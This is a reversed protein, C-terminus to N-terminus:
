SVTKKYREGTPAYNGSIFPTRDGPGPVTAGHAEVALRFCSGKACRSSDPVATRTEGGLYLRGKECQKLHILRLVMLDTLFRFEEQLDCVLAHYYDTPTHFVGLGPHIREVRVLSEIQRYLLTYGFNLLSNVPDMAPRFRAHFGYERPIHTSLRNWYVWAARAEFSRLTDAASCEEVDRRIAMMERLANEDEYSRKRQRQLVVRCNDIKAAIMERAAAIKRTEDRCYDTQARIVSAAQDDGPLCVTGLHTGTASCLTIPVRHYMCARIVPYSLHVFGYCILSEILALPIEESGDADHKVVLRGMSTYLKVRPGDIYVPMRSVARGTRSFPDQRRYAVTSTLREGQDPDLRSLWNGVPARDVARAWFHSDADDTSRIWQTSGKDGSREAILSRCFTYGLYTFDMISTPSPPRTKM